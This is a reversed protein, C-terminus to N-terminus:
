NESAPPALNTFDVGGWKSCDYPIEGCMLKMGVYYTLDEGLRQERYENSTVLGAMERIRERQYMAWLLGTIDACNPLYCGMKAIKALPCQARVWPVTYEDSALKYSFESVEAFVVGREKLGLHTPPLPVVALPLGKGYWMEPSYPTEGCAMKLDLYYSVDQAMRRDCEETRPLGAAIEQALERRFLEWIVGVIKSFYNGGYSGWRVIKSAPHLERMGQVSLIGAAMLTAAEEFEGRNEAKIAESTTLGKVKPRASWANPAPNKKVKQQISTTITATLSM